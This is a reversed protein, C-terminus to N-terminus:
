PSIEDSKNQISPKEANDSQENPQVPYGILTVTTANSNKFIRFIDQPLITKFTEEDTFLIFTYGKQAEKITIDYLFHLTNGFAKRTSVFRKKQM